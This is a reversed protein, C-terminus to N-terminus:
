GRTEPLAIKLKYLCPSYYPPLFCGFWFQNLIITKSLRIEKRSLATPQLDPLYILSFCCLYYERSKPFVNLGTGRPLRGHAVLFYLRSFHLALHNHLKSCFGMGLETILEKSDALFATESPKQDSVSLKGRPM